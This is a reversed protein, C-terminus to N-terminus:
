EVTRKDKGATLHVGNYVNLTEDDKNNLPIAVQAKM